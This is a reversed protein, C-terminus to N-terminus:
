VKQCGNNKAAQNINEIFAELKAQIKLVKSKKKERYLWGFYSERASGDKLHFIIEFVKGNNYVYDCKLMYTFRHYFEHFFGYLNSRREKKIEKMEVYKVESLPFSRFFLADVITVKNKRVRIGQNKILIMTNLLNYLLTVGSLCLGIINKDYCSLIVFATFLVSVLNCIIFMRYNYDYKFFAKM